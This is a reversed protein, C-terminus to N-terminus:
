SNLKLNNMRETLEEITRLPCVLLDLLERSTPDKVSAFYEPKNDATLYGEFIPLYPELQDLM